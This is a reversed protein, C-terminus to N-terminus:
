KPQFPAAALLEEIQAASLNLISAVAVLLVCGPTIFSTTRYTRNLSSAPDSSVADQITASSGPLVAELAGFFQGATPPLCEVIQTPDIDITIAIGQRGIKVSGTPSRVDIPFTPRIPYSPM